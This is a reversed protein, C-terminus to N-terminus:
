SSEKPPAPFIVTIRLGEPAAREFVIRALHAEALTKIIGLGLGLGKEKSSPAAFSRLEALKEDTVAPGNDEVTVAPQGDITQLHCRIAPAKVGACADAANKLLNLLMLEIELKRGDILLTEPGTVDVAHKWSRVACFDKVTGRVIAALNLRVRDGRESKARRRVHDIADSAKQAEDGIRELSEEIDLGDDMPVAGSAMRREIVASTGRVLNLIAALPHKLDHALVTSLQGVIGSRELAEIQRSQLRLRAENEKQVAMAHVLEKTRRRVLREALWGHLVLFLLAAAALVVIIKYEKWLRSATWYREYEYPGVKVAKMLRDVAEFNPSVSWREGWANVPKNLLVGLVTRIRERSAARTSGFVLGPYAATSHRDKLDSPSKAPLVRLRRLVSPRGDEAMDELLGARIVAADALGALMEKVAAKGETAGLYRVSGFFRDPDEGAAAVEGQVALVGAVDNKAEAVLRLGRLDEITWVASETPVAVAAAAGQDPNPARSSVAAALIRVGWRAFDGYLGAGSVFFDVDGRRILDSLQQADAYAIECAEGSQWELYRVTERVFSGANWPPTAVAVGIRIPTQAALTAAAALSLLLSLFAKMVISDHCM